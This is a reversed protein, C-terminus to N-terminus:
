PDIATQGTQTWRSAKNTALKTLDGTAPGKVTLALVRNRPPEQIAPDRALTFSTTNPNTTVVPKSGAAIATVLGDRITTLTPGGGAIHTHDEGDITVTYSGGATATIVEVTWQTLNTAEFDDVAFGGSFIAATTAGMVLDYNHNDNWEEEFDEFNETGTIPDFAVTVTAGLVFAYNNNASELDWLEFPEGTGNDAFTIVGGGGLPELQFDNATANIVQYCVGFTFGPGAPLTGGLDPFVIRDGDILAHATENVRNTASIFTVSHIGAGWEEELNEFNQPAICDFAASTSAGLGFLYSENSSWEREFGEFTTVDIGTNFQATLIESPNDPVEYAEVYSSLGTWHAEFREAREAFLGASAGFDATEEQSNTNTVIAWGDPTFEDGDITVVTAGADPDEFSINIFTHAM